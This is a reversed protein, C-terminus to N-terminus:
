EASDSTLNHKNILQYVRAKSLGSITCVEKINNRTHNLLRQLYALESKEKFEKWSVLPENASFASVTEQAPSTAGHRLTSKIYALQIKEPLNKSYLNPTDIATSFVSEMVNALERVNGPWSYTMLADSFEPSFTKPEKGYRKCLQKMFHEALELVDEGRERLPPLVIDMARVRFLLDERFKGQAVMDDLNRNTACILRIDV